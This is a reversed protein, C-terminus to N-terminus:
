GDGSAGNSNLGQWPGNLDGGNTSEELQCPVPERLDSLLCAVTPYNGWLSGSKPMPPLKSLFLNIGCFSFPKIGCVSSIGWLAQKRTEQSLKIRLNGQSFQFPKGGPNRSAGLNAPGAPIANHTRQIARHLSPGKQLARALVSVMATAPPHCDMVLGSVRIRM